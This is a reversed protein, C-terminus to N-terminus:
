LLLSCLNSIKCSTTMNWILNHLILQKVSSFAIIKRNYLLLHIVYRCTCSHIKCCFWWINFKHLFRKFSWIQVQIINNWKQNKVLMVLPSILDSLRETWVDTVMLPYMSQKIQLDFLILGINNLNQVTNIYVILSHM